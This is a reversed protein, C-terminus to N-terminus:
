CGRTFACTHNKSRDWSLSCGSVGLLTGGLTEHGLCLAVASSEQVEGSTWQKPTTSSLSAVKSSRSCSVLFGAKGQPTVRITCIDLARYDRSPLADPLVSRSRRSRRVLGPEQKEVVQALAKECPFFTRATALALM